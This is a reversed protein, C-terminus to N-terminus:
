LGVNITGNWGSFDPIKVARISQLMNKLPVCGNHGNYGPPRHFNWSNVLQQLNHCTHVALWSICFKTGADGLVFEEKVLLVLFVRKVLYNIRQNIEPWMCEAVYNQTSQTQGCPMRRKDYWYLKLLVQIFVYSCFEQEYDM